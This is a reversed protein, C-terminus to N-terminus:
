GARESGRKAPAEIPTINIAMPEAAARAVRNKGGRKSAYMARDASVLLADASRGDAPYSVVGVSVTPGPEIGPFGQEAVTQRIKEAVVWGGTPDTEPLLAVFEDGGYRAATDIKRVGGRVIESVGRLVQDGAIHGFRDNVSKLDDLDLMVMCFARGSRDGRAIERELATFFYSRNYLGTLADVTSLRIAADRARRQERGVSAGIYALLYVGTLNVAMTVLPGVEPTPDVILGAALYAATALVALALAVRPAVLLAGAGVILPFTFTFPSELGGTLAVLSSAFTLALVAQLPGKARKLPTRPLIDQLILLAEGTIAVLIVISALADAWIGSAAAFVAVAMLFAWSVVRVVRDELHPDPKVQPADPTLPLEPDEDDDTVVLARSTETAGKPDAMGEAPAERAEGARDSFRRRVWVFSPALLLAFAVISLIAIALVVLESVSPM